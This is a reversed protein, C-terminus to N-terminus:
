FTNYAYIQGRDIGIFIVNNFYIPTLKVRTDFKITKIREGNQPNILYVKKNFDPQILINKLLLPTANIIGKTEIKWNLRGNKKSISFLDGALNGIFINESNFVPTSVIKANTDFSWLIKKNVFDFSYIKGSIDAFYAINKDITFGSEIGNCLKKRFLISGDIASVIIIEGKQNGFLIVNGDSAPISQSTVKTDISWEKLGAFNFKILEGRDSLVFICDDLKLLENNVSGEIRVESLTNGSFLDRMVFISYNENKLNVVFYIRLKYLVPAVSISGSYKEYGILKGTAIDFGYIRGSLDNVFIFSGNIIVSTNSQSGNTEAIWRLELSDSISVDEYFNRQPIKGYMFIGPQDLPMNKLALHQTCRYILFLGILIILLKKLFGM